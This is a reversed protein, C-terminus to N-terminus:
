AIVTNDGAYTYLKQLDSAVYKSYKVVGGVTVKYVYEGEATDKYLTAIKNQAEKLYTTNVCAIGATVGGQATALTAYGTVNLNEGEALSIQGLNYVYKGNVLPISAGAIQKAGVQTTNPSYTYVAKTDTTKVYGMNLQPKVGFETAMQRWKDAGQQDVALYINLVGANIDFESIFEGKLYVAEFKMGKMLAEFKEFDADADNTDKGVKNGDYSRWLNWGSEGGDKYDKANHRYYGILAAKGGSAGRQVDPNTSSPYPFAVTGDKQWAYSVVNEAVYEDVFTVDCYNDLVVDIVPANVIIDELKITYSFNAISPAVNNVVEVTEVKNVAFSRVDEIASGTLAYVGGEVTIVDGLKLTASGNIEVKEAEGRKYFAKGGQVNVTFVAEDSVTVATSGLLDEGVYYYVNTSETFAYTIGEVATATEESAGVKITGAFTTAPVKIASGFPERYVYNALNVEIGAVANATQSVKETAEVSANFVTDGIKTIIFSDVMSVSELKVSVEVMCNGNEDKDFGAWPTDDGNTAGTADLDRILLSKDLQSSGNYIDPTYLAIDNFDYYISNAATSAGSGDICANESLTIGMNAANAVTLAKRLVYKNQGTQWGKGNRYAGFASQESTKADYSIAYVETPTGYNRTQIQLQKTGQNFTFVLVGSDSTTGNLRDLAKSPAYVFELMSENKDTETSAVTKENTGAWNSSGINFTGLNFVTGQAGSLKIGTFKGNVQSVQAENEVYSASGGVASISSAYDSLTVTSADVIASTKITNIAIFGSLCMSASLLATVLIKSLKKM